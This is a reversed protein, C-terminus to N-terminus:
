ETGSIENADPWDTTTVFRYGSETEEMETTVTVPRGIRMSIITKPSPPGPQEEISEVYGDAKRCVDEVAQSHQRQINEIGDM